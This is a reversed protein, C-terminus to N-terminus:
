RPSSRYRTAAPRTASLEDTFKSEGREYSREGTAASLAVGRRREDVHFRTGLSEPRQKKTGRDLIGRRNGPFSPSSRLVNISTKLRQEKENQLMERQSHTSGRHKRRRHRFLM